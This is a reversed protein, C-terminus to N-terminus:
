NIPEYTFEITLTFEPLTYGNGYYSLPIDGDWIVEVTLPASETGSALDQTFDDVGLGFDVSLGYNEANVPNGGVTWTYGLDEIAILFPTDNFATATLAGWAIDEGIAGTFEGFDITWEITQGDNTIEASQEVNGFGFGLPVIPAMAEATQWRVEVDAVTLNVTGEVDLTGSLAAFAAGALFVLMFATALATMLRTNKLKQM